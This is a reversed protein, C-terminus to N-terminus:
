GSLKGSKINLYYSIGKLIQPLTLLAEEAAQAVSISGWGFRSFTPSSGSEMSLPLPTGCGESGRSKLQLDKQTILELHEPCQALLVGM